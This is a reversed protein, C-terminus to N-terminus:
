SLAWLQVQLGVRSLCPGLSVSASAGRPGRQPGNGSRPLVAGSGDCSSYTLPWLNLSVPHAWEDLPPAESIGLPCGVLTGREPGSM